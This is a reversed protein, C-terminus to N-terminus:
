NTWISCGVKQGSVPEQVNKAFVRHLGARSAKVEKSAPSDPDGIEWHWRAKRPARKWTFKVGYAVNGPTANDFRCDITAPMMGKVGMANVIEPANVKTLWENGASTPGSLPGTMCGGLLLAGITASARAARKSGKQNFGM